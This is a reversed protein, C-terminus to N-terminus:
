RWTGVAIRVYGTEESITDDESITARGGETSGVFGLAVGSRVACAARSVPSTPSFGRVFSAAGTQKARKRSRKGRGRRPRKARPSRPSASSSPSRPREGLVAGAAARCRISEEYTPARGRNAKLLKARFTRTLEALRGRHRRKKRKKGRLPGSHRSEQDRMVQSIIMSCYPESISCYPVLLFLALLLASPPFAMAMPGPQSPPGLSVVVFRIKKTTPQWRILMCTRMFGWCSNMHAHAGRGGAAIGGWM